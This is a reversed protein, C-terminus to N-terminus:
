GFEHAMEDMKQKWESIEEDKLHIMGDKKQLMERFTAESLDLSDKYEVLKGELSVVKSLLEDRMAKYQRTMDATLEFTHQKEEEFDQKLTHYRGRYERMTAEMQRENANKLMLQHRLSDLQAKLYKNQEDVTLSQEQDGDTTEKGKKKGAKKAKKGMQNGFLFFNVDHISVSSAHM